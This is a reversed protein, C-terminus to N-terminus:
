PAVKFLDGQSRISSIHALYRMFTFYRNPGLIRLCVRLCMNIARIAGSHSGLDKFTERKSAKIGRGALHHKYAFRFLTSDLSFPDEEAPFRLELAAYLRRLTPSVYSGDLFFDFSYPILSYHANEQRTLLNAYEAFLPGCDPRSGPAWRSQKHAISIPEAINFSSFHFFYLPESDNVVWEGDRRSLQREHLNWFAVNLGPNRLIRLNPFYCPALDIWKQDVALGLQPEYYGLQLCRDSWWDLFNMAESCQRVGVFGLNFSGFRSFDVDSPNKGDLIPTMSHPTVVISSDQLANLVPSLYSFIQIDPDIYLVQQYTTLLKKMVIAKVNTSLEIVDFKFAYHSFSDICLDEIWLYTVGPTKPLAEPNKRDILLIFFDSEPHYRLYSNRLVLAKGLYNLACITVSAFTNQKKQVM